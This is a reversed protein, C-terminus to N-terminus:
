APEDVVKFLSAPDWAVYPEGPNVPASPPPEGNAPLELRWDGDVWVVTWETHTSPGGEFPERVIDVRVRDLSQDLVRFGRPQPVDDGTPIPQPRANPGTAASRQRIYADRGPGPALLHQAAAGWDSTRQYRWSGNLAAFVAGMPTRAYCRAILGDIAAPGVSASVPVLYGDLDQWRTDQPPSVPPETGSSAPPACTGDPRLATPIGPERDAASPASGTTPNTEGATSPAASTAGSSAATPDSPDAMLTVVAAVVVLGVIAASAIFGKETFPSQEGLRDGERSRRRLLAM